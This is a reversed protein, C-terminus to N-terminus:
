YRMGHEGRVSAELEQKLADLKAEVEALTLQKGPFGKEGAGEEEEEKEYWTTLGLLLLVTVEVIIAYIILGPQHAIVFKIGRLGISFILFATGIFAIATINNKYLPIFENHMYMAFAQRVRGGEKNLWYKPKTILHDGFRRSIGTAKLLSGFFAHLNGRFFFLGLPTFFMTITFLSIVALIFIVWLNLIFTSIGMKFVYEGWSGGPLLKQLEEATAQSVTRGKGENELFAKYQDLTMMEEREQALVTSVPVSLVASLALILFCLPRIFGQFRSM